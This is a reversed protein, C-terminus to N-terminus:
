GVKELKKILKEVFSKMGIHREVEVGRVEKLLRLFRGKLEDDGKLYLRAAESEISVRSSWPTRGLVELLLGVLDESIDGERM